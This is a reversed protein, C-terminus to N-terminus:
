ESEDEEEWVAANVIKKKPQNSKFDYIRKKSRDKEKPHLYKCNMGYPCHGNLFDRCEINLKEPMKEHIFRCRQGYECTGQQFSWCYNKGRFPKLENERSSQNRNDHSRDNREEHSRKGLNVMCDKEVHGTNKCRFCRLVRGTNFAANVEADEKAHRLQDKIEEEIIRSAVRYSITESDRVLKKIEQFQNSFSEAYRLRDVLWDIKRNETLQEDKGFSEREMLLERMRDMGSHVLSDSTFKPIADILKRNLEVQDQFKAAFETELLFMIDRVENETCNAIEAGPYVGRVRNWLTPELVSILLTRAMGCQSNWVKM